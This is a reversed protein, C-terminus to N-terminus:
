FLELAEVIRYAVSFLIFVFNKNIEKVNNWIFWFYMSEYM